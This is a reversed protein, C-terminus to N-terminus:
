NTDGDAKLRDVGDEEMALTHPPIHPAPYTIASSRSGAQGGSLRGGWTGMNGNRDEHHVWM